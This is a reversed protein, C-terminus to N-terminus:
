GSIRDTTMAPGTSRWKLGKLMAPDIGSTEEEDARKKEKTQLPGTAFGSFQIAVTIVLLSKPISTMIM